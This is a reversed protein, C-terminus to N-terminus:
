AEQSTSTEAKVNAMSINLAKQAQLADVNDRIYSGVEDTSKIGEFVPETMSHGRLTNTALVDAIDVALDPVVDQLDVDPNFKVTEIM